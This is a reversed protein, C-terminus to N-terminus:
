RKNNTLVFLYKVSYYISYIHMDKHTYTCDGFTCNDSLYGTTDPKLETISM